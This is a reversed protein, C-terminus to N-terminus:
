GFLRTATNKGVIGDATLGLAAQFSRAAAVSCSGFDGGAGYSGCSFGRCILMMQVCKAQTGKSGARVNIWAKKSKAGFVGDATTGICSQM